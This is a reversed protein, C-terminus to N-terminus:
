KKKKQAKRRGKKKSKSKDRSRSRSRNRNKNRNRNRNLEEDRENERELVEKTSNIQDVMNIIDLGVKTLGGIEMNSPVFDEIGAVAGIACKVREKPELEKETIFDKGTVCEIASKISGYRPIQDLLLSCDKQVSECRKIIRDEVTEKNDKKPPKLGFEEQIQEKLDEIDKQNIFLMSM